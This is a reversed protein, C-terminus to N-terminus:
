TAAAALVKEYVAMTQRAAKAWSFESSRVLGRQRLSTRLDSDDLVRALATSLDEVSDPDILLGADGVVEPLSSRDSVVVPTGCAMAELPPLGFGEYYSPLTLCQAANYLRALDESSVNELFHVQEALKLETLTSFVEEYLWGKRGV